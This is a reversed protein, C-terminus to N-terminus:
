VTLFCHFFDGQLKDQLELKDYVAQPIKRVECFHNEFFYKYKKEETIM